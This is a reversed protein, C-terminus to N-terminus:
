EEKESSSKLIKFLDTQIIEIKYIMKELLECIEGFIYAFFTTVLTSGWISFMLQSNFTKEIKSSSYYSSISEVDVIGYINGAVIGAIMGIVLIAIATKKIISSGM